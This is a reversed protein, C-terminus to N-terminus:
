FILGEDYVQWKFSGKGFMEILHKVDEDYDKNVGEFTVVMERIIYHMIYGNHTKRDLLQYGKNKASELEEPEVPIYVYGIDGVLHPYEPGINELIDNFYDESRILTNARHHYFLNLKM